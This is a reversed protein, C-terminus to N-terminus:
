DIDRDDTELRLFDRVLLVRLAARVAVPLVPWVEDRGVVTVRVIHTARGDRDVRAPGGLVNQVWDASPGYTLAVILDGELDFM